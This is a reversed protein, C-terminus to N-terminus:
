HPHPHLYQENEIAGSDVSRETLALNFPVGPVTIQRLDVFWIYKYCADSSAKVSLSKEPVGSM